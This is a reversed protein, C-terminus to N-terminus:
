DSSKGAERVEAAAAHWDQDHRDGSPDTDQSGGPPEERRPTGADDVQTRKPNAMGGSENREPLHQDAVM